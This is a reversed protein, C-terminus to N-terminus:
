LAICLSHQMYPDKYLQGKTIMHEQSHLGENYHKQAYIVTWIQRTYKGTRIHESYHPFIEMVKDRTPPLLFHTNRDEEIEEFDMFMNFGRSGLELDQLTYLTPSSPPDRM